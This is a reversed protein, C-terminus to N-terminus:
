KGDYTVWSKATEWLKLEALKVDTPVNKKHPKEKDAMIKEAEEPLDDSTNEQKLIESLPSLQEWMWVITNEATPNEMLDNLLYHDLKEIIREKVIKKLIVFDIVMGSEPEIDGEVTVILKYSHGHLRECKGHYHPLFHAAEFDFEKSVKM